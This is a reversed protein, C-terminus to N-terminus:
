ARVADPGPTVSGIQAEIWDLFSHKDLVQSVRLTGWVPAQLATRDTTQVIVPLRELIPDSRVARILEAGNMVPMHVDVIALDVHERRLVELAEEGNAATLVAFHPGLLARYLERVDQDDDVVLLTNHRAGEGLVREVAASIEAPTAPKKVYAAAGVIVAEAQKQAISVFMLRVGAHRRALRAFSLGDMEPMLIDAVILDPRFTELADLAGRASTFVAVEHGRSELAARMWTLTQEDDDLMLLKAM